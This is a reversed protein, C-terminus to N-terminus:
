HCLMAWISTNCKQCMETVEDSVYKLDKRSSEILAPMDFAVKGQHDFAMAGLKVSLTRGAGNHQVGLQVSTGPALRGIKASLENPDGINEGNVSTIVDGAQVGAAAAPSDDFADAVLAGSVVRNNLGDAIDKSVPRIDVGLWGRMSDPKADCAVKREKISDLNMKLESRYFSDAKNLADATVCSQIGQKTRKEFDDPQGCYTIVAEEFALSKLRKWFFQEQPKTLRTFGLDGFQSDDAHGPSLLFLALIAGSSISLRAGM